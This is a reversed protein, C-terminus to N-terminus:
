GSRFRNAAELAAKQTPEDLGRFFDELVLDTNGFRKALVYWKAAEATNPETGIGDKYLHAVRNIAIPNGREAARRLWRFGDALEAPGGKANILWIGYEIQATDHGGAAAKGLWERAKSLDAGIGDRGYALIQSLAYEADPLGAEAAKRFYGEAEAFGGAPSSQIVMQAYNFQALPLGSDAASKMLDRAEALDQPVDRGDLLMMAYRFQGEASGSRAAAQYWPAAKKMDVPVGLGRSHIEGLLVQAAADGLNALPEAQKMATLYFGRQFAGFALDAPAIERAPAAPAAAAARPVGPSPTPTTARAPQGAARPAATPVPPAAPPQVEQAVSAGAALLAAAAALALRRPASV